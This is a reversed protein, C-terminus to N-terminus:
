APIGTPPVLLPPGRSGHARVRRGMPPRVVPPTLSRHWRRRRPPASRLRTAVVAVLRSVASGLWATVVQILGGLLLIAALGHDVLQHPLSELTLGSSAIREGLELGAFLVVQLTALTLFRVGRSGGRGTPALLGLALAVGVSTLVAPGLLSTWGHGSEALVADHVHLDPFLILYTLLHGGLVGVLAWALALVGRSSRRAITV